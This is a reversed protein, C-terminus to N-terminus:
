KHNPTAVKKARLNDDSSGAFQDIALALARQAQGYLRLRKRILGPWDTKDTTSPWALCITPNTPKNPGFGQCDEPDTYSDTILSADTLQVSAVLTCLFNPDATTVQGEIKDFMAASAALALKANSYAHLWCSPTSDWPSCKGDLAKRAPASASPDPLKPANAFDPPIYNNPNIIHGGGSGKSHKAAAVLHDLFEAKGTITKGAPAVCATGIRPLDIAIDITDEGAARCMPGFSVIGLVVSFAAVVLTDNRARNSMGGGGLSTNEVQARDEILLPL